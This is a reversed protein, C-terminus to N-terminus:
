HHFAGVENEDRVLSSRILYDSEGQIQKEVTLKGRVRLKMKYHEQEDM